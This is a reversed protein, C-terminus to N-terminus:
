GSSEGFGLNGGGDGLFGGDGLLLGTFNELVDSFQRVFVGLVGEGQGTKALEHQHVALGAQAAVRHGALLNLNRGLADHLEAHGLGGLVGDEAGLLENGKALSGSTTLTTGGVKM